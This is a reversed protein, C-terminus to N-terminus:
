AFFLHRHKWGDLHTHEFLRRDAHTAPAFPLPPTSCSKRGLNKNRAVTCDCTLVRNWGMWCNLLGIRNSCGRHDSHYSCSSAFQESFQVGHWSNQNPESSQVSDVPTLLRGDLQPSLLPLSSFPIVWPLWPFPFSSRRIVILETHRETLAESTRDQGQLSPSARLPFAESAIHWVFDGFALLQPARSTFFRQQM